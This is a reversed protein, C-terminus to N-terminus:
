MAHRRKRMEFDEKVYGICVFLGPDCTENCGVVGKTSKSIGTDCLWPVCVPRFKCGM